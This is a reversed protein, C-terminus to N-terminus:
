CWGDGGGCSGGRSGSCVGVWIRWYGASIVM